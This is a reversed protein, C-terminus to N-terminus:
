PVTGPNDGSLGPVTWANEQSKRPIKNKQTNGDEWSFFLLVNVSKVGMWERSLGSFNNINIPEPARFPAVVVVEAKMEPLELHWM